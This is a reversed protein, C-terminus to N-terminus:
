SADLEKRQMGEPKHASLHMQVQPVAATSHLEL